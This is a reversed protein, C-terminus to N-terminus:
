KFHMVWINQPTIPQSEIRKEVYGEKGDVPEHGFHGRREDTMRKSM